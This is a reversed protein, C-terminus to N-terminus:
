NVNTTLVSSNNASLPDFTTAKVKATNNILSGSPVSVNVVLTITASAANSLTSMTCTLTGNKSPLGCHGLTTTASVFSTGSPIVDTVAVSAADAPGNNQITLTYTLNSGSAVPNPSASQAIALDASNPTVAVGIPASGVTITKVVTNTATSIVSVNNSGINSVYAYAGDPTIAVHLPSSGAGVTAVVQNTATNIVSVNNSGSNAVYVFKGDPTAAAGFPGTNVTITAIVTNTKTAIVSVSGSGGNTVYAYKGDPVIAIWVPNAGV